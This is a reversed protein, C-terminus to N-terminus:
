PATGEAGRRALALPGDKGSRPSAQLTPRAPAPAPEVYKCSPMQGPENPGLPRQSLRSSMLCRQQAYEGGSAAPETRLTKGSLYRLLKRLDTEKGDPGAILDPEFEAPQSLSRRDLRKDLRVQHGFYRQKRPM